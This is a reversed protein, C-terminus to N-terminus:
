TKCTFFFKARQYLAFTEHINHFIVQSINFIVQSVPTHPLIFTYKFVEIDFFSLPNLSATEVFRICCSPENFSVKSVYKFLFHRQM